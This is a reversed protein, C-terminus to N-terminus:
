ADRGLTAVVRITASGHSARIARPNRRRHLEPPGPTLPQGEWADGEITWGALSGTEFDLNLGAGDPGTAAVFAM